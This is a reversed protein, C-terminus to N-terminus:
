LYFDSPDFDPPKLHDPNPDAGPINHPVRGRGRAGPYTPGYPDFRPQMGGFNPGSFMSPDDLFMPHNPGMLNGTSIPQGLPHMPPDIRLCPPTLDTSFDSPQKVQVSITHSSTYPLASSMHRLSNNHPTGPLSVRQQQELLAQDGLDFVLCFNNLLLPLAKFHLAPKIGRSGENGLAAQFSQLNVHASLPFSLVSMQEEKDDTTHFHISVVLDEEKEHSKKDLTCLLIRTGIGARRYRLRISCSDNVEWGSPLYVHKPLDRVAPAFGNTKEEQPVGTCVFGTHRIAGHLAVALAALGSTVVVNESSM